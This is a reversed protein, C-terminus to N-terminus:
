SAVIATACGRHTPALTDIIANPSARARQSEWGGSSRRLARVARDGVHRAQRRARAESRRADSHTIELMPRERSSRTSPTITPVSSTIRAVAGGAAAGAAGAPTSDPSSRCVDRARPAAEGDLGRSRVHDGPARLRCRSARQRAAQPLHEESRRELSRDDAAIEEGSALVVGAVRDERVLIREVPAGTRLQAGAARAARALAESLAGLGGAAAGPRGGGALGRLRYLLSVVTGPSRPGYNTGLVADFALAGKLLPLRFREDLLDHVCMGGIRLLERMDAGGSRPPHALRPRAAGRPRALCRHRAAATDRTLIPHLARAFRQLLARWDAFRRRM